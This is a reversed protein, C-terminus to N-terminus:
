LLSPRAHSLMPDSRVCSTSRHPCASLCVRSEEDDLPELATACSRSPPTYFCNSEFSPHTAPVPVPWGHRTHFSLNTARIIRAYWLPQAELWLVAARSQICERHVLSIPLFHEHFTSRLRPWQMKPAAQVKKTESAVLRVLEAFTANRRLGVWAKTLGARVKDRYASLLREYPNRVVIFRVSRDRKTPAVPPFMQPKDLHKNVAHPDQPWSRTVHWLLLRKWGTSGCKAPLCADTFTNNGTRLVPFGASTSAILMATLALRRAIM